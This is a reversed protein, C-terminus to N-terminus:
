SRRGAAQGAISHLQCYPPSDCGCGCLEGLSTGAFRREAYALTDDILGHVSCLPPHGEIGLPCKTIRQPAADVAVLVALVTVMAPHRRLLFGGHLGRQSVVLEARVMMKLVKSLYGGPALTGQSIVSATQPEPHRVALFVAALLAYEGTASIVRPVGLYQHASM